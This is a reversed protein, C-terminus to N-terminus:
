RGQLADLAVGMTGIVRADLQSDYVPIKYLDRAGWKRTISFAPAGDPRVFDFNYPIFDFSTFRRLIANFNSSEQGKYEGELGEQSLYWTSSLLSAKFDKRFTGLPEGNADKIDAVSSLDMVNRAQFSFAKQSKSDDAWFTVEEKLKFRKQQAFGILTGLTGEADSERIEYRKGLGFRQKIVLHRVPAPTTTM